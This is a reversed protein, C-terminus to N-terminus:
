ARHLPAIVAVGAAASRALEADEGALRRGLRTLADEARDPRATLQRVRGLANRAARRSSASSHPSQQIEHCRMAAHGLNLLALSAELAQLNARASRESLRVLRLTRHYLRAQWVARHKLAAADGALDVLDHLMAALLTDLRRRLNAPYVLRYAAMAALPAALVALGAAVSQPLSGTLPFHPQLMLLLVMNYDFSAATTRRHGVLLPGILIFPLTLLIMEFESGALPWILWRVTLAGFVGFLQGVLVFRMFHAPNEFTSFLSIMVSLGLLMYGGVSWGTALWIAGFLGLAGIARLMAERAGTWDRHLVVPLVPEPALPDAPRTWRALAARLPRLIDRLGTAPALAATGIAADLAAQAGAFDGRRLAGAAGTLREQTEPDAFDRGKGRRWLLAPIAAILLARTARVERRSRISGAAHPDLGEEIEAIRSLLARDAEAGSSDAPGAARLLLDALLEQVQRRLGSGDARPAFLYGVLTAVIVGTLVTAMRDAGLSLVHDPHAADLLSVMAATYGALVTGYAVFGRQLNGIGTCLGVWLALGIVLLAPHVTMALVLLVGVITGSITGLIRFLSKELLQGRTPQSAAWVAMGAWQPHELGLAWGLLFALCAAVATRASFVLRGIDFGKRTLWATM